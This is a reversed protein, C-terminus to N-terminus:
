LRTGLASRFLLRNALIDAGDRQREVAFRFVRERRAMAAETPEAAAAEIAAVFREPADLPLDHGVGAAALGRWPTTDSLLVPTGVGLSEAIVHGFNEGRTPLFFLDYRALTAAVDSPAVAGHWEVRVHAPLAESLKRCHAFHAQDEPPGYVAFDVASGVEALIRLAYDLNKMPSIRSLFVVRLPTGAARVAPPPPVVPLSMPLCAAVHIDRAHVGMAAEIAQIDSESSAQWLLGSYVGTARALAIWARKKLPKLGLAGASLEGRPAILAPQRAFLGLRRGVLPAITFRPSFCSNLYLLDHPTRAILEAISRVNQQEPPTYHVLARGVPVWRSREVSSFPVVDSLDRDSTIIRFDFEDSLHETLNVLSRLPGGMRFGPLYHGILVLVAPKTM